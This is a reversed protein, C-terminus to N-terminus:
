QLICCVACEEVCIHICVCVHVCMSSCVYMSGIEALSVNVTIDQPYAGTLTVTVVVRAENEFISYTRASLSINVAVTYVHFFLDHTCSLEEDEDGHHNVRVYVVHTCVYM